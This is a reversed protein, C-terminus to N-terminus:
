VLGQTNEELEFGPRGLQQEQEEFASLLQKIIAECTRDDFIRCFLEKLEKLGYHEKYALLVLALM